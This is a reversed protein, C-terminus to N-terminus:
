GTAYGGRPRLRRLVDEFYRQVVRVRDGDHPVRLGGERHRRQRAMSLDRQMLMEILLMLIGGGDLLPIPLM